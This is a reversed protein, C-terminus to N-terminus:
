KSANPFIELIANGAPLFENRLGQTVIAPLNYKKGMGLLQKIANMASRANRDTRYKQFSEVKKAAYNYRTGLEKIVKADMGGYKAEYEAVVRSVRGGKRKSPKPEILGGVAALEFFPEVTKKTKKGFAPAMPASYGGYMPIDGLDSSKHIASAPAYGYAGVSGLDSYKPQDLPAYGYMGVKSYDFSSSAPASPASSVAKSASSQASRLSEMVAKHRENEMRVAQSRTDRLAKRAQATNMGPNMPSKLTLVAQDYDYRLKKLNAYHTAKEAEIAQTANVVLARLQGKTAYLPIKVKNMKLIGKMARANYYGDNCYASSSDAACMAARQLTLDTMRQLACKKTLARKHARRDLARCLQAQSKHSRGPIKCLAAYTGVRARPMYKCPIPDSRYKACKDLGMREYELQVDRVPAGKVHLPVDNAWGAKAAYNPRRCVRKRSKKGSKRGSKKRYSKRPM